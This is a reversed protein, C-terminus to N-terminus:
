LNLVLLNIAESLHVNGAVVLGNLKTDEGVEGVLDSAGVLFQGNGGSSDLGHKSVSTNSNVGVILSVSMEVALSNVVGEQVSGNGNDSIGLSDVHLKSGSGDLDSRGMVGVIVQGTLSLVELKDVDKIVVTSEILGTAIKGTELSEIGSLLDNLLELLNTQKLVLGGVGHRNGGTGFRSVDNLREELGLPPDSVLLLSINGHLSNSIASDGDGRLGGLGLVELPEAVDLVPTDRSLQPPTM